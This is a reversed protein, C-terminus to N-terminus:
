QGSRWEVAPEYLHSLDMYEDFALDRPYTGNAIHVDPDLIGGLCAASVVLESCFWRHRDYYTRGFLHRRLGHHTNFITGQLLVRGMAFEKGEQARAFRIMACQGQPTVEGRLRRVLVKGPFACLRSEIDLVTVRARIVTPGHLDLIVPYGEEHAIILASHTPPGTGAVKYAFHHLPIFQDLLLLDGPRPHYPVFQEGCVLFGVQGTGRRQLEQACLSVGLLLLVGLPALWPRRM